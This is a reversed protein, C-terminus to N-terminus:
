FGYLDRWLFFINEQIYYYGGRILYSIYGILFLINIMSLEKAKEVYFLKRSYKRNM